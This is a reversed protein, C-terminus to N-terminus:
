GAAYVIIGIILIIIVVMLTPLARVKVTKSKGDFDQQTVLNENESKNISVSQFGTSQQVKRDSTISSLLNESDVTSYDRDRMMPDREFDVQRELVERHVMTSIDEGKTHAGVLRRLAGEGFLHNEYMDKLSAGEVTIDKSLELLKDRGIVKIPDPVHVSDSNIKSRSREKNTAIVFDALHEVDAKKANLKDQEFINTEIPRPINESNIKSRSREKNTAIVFDALHEVDAKKANLKDQEILFKNEKKQKEGLEQLTNEKLTLNQEMAKIKKGLKKRETERAKSIKTKRQETIIYEALRNITSSQESRKPLIVEKKPEIHERDHPVKLTDSDSGLNHPITKIEPETHNEEYVEDNQGLLQHIDERGENGAAEKSSIEINNQYLNDNLMKDYAEEPSVGSVVENLFGEVQPQVQGDVVPDNLHDIALEKNIYSEENDFDELTQIESNELDLDNEQKQEKELFYHVLKLTQGAVEEKSHEKRLLDNSSSILKEDKKSDDDEDDEFTFFSKETM